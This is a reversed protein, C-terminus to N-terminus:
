SRYKKNKNQIAERKLKNIPISGKEKSTQKNSKKWHYLGIELIAYNLSSHVVCSRHHIQYIWQLKLTNTKGVQTLNTRMADYDRNAPLFRDKPTSYEVYFQIEFTIM